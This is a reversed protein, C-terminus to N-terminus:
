AAAVEPYSFCQVKAESLRGSRKVLQFLEGYNAYEMVIALHSPTLCAQSAAVASIDLLLLKELLLHM